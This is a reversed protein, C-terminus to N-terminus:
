SFATMQSVKPAITQAIRGKKAMTNMVKMM